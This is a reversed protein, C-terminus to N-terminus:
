AKKRRRKKEKATGVRMKNGITKPVRKITKKKGDTKSRLTQIAPGGIGL